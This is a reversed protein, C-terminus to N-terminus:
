IAVRRNQAEAPNVSMPVLPQDSGHATVIMQERPLGM